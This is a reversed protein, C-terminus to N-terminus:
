FDPGTGSFYEFNSAQEPNKSTSIRGQNTACARVDSILFDGRSYLNIPSNNIECEM